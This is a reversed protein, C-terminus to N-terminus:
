GQYGVGVRSNIHSVYELVILHIKNVSREARAIPIFLLSEVPVATDFYAAPM